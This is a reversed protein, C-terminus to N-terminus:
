GPLARSGRRRGQGESRREGERDINVVIAFKKIVFKQHAWRLQSTVVEEAYKTGNISNARNYQTCNIRIFINSM